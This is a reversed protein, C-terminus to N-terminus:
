FVQVLSNNEGLNEPSSSEPICLVMATSRPWLQTVNLPSGPLSYVRLLFSERWKLLEGLIGRRTSERVLCAGERDLPTLLVAVRGGYLALAGRCVFPRVRQSRSSAAKQAKKFLKEASPPMWRVM